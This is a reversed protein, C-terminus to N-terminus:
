NAPTHLAQTATKRFRGDPYTRLYQQAFAAARPSKLDAAAEIELVLAEEALAGHPYDRLYADLMHAARKADHDGRLARVADVLASPDDGRAPRVRVATHVAPPRPVATPVASATVPAVPPAAPRTPALQAPAPPLAAPTPRTVRYWERSVWGRGVTAASAAAGILLLVSAALSPRLVFRDSWRPPRSRATVAALIRQQRAETPEVSEMATLAEVLDAELTGGAPRTDRLREM